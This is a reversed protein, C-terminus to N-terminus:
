SVNWKGQEVDILHILARIPAHVTGVPDHKTNPLPGARLEGLGKSTGWIRINRANTITLFDGEVKVAGVYIFGRDLVVIKVDKDAVMAQPVSDARVYEVDDIKLTKPQAM